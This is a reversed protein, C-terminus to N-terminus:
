IVSQMETSGPQANTRAEERPANTKADDRAAAHALGGEERVASAKPEPRANPKTLSEERAVSTAAEERAMSTIAELADERKELADERRQLEAFRRELAKIKDSLLLVDTHVGLGQGVSLPTVPRQTEGSPQRDPGEKSSSPTTAAADLGPDSVGKELALHGWSLRSGRRKNFESEIHNLAQVAHAEGKRYDSFDITEEYQLMRYVKRLPMVYYLLLNTIFNVASIIGVSAVLAILLAFISPKGIMGQQQIVIRIGNRAEVQADLAGVNVIGEGRHEWLIQSEDSLTLMGQPLFGSSISVAVDHMKAVRYEYSSVSGWRNHNYHVTLHLALGNLRAEESLDGDNDLVRAIRLLEHLSLIDFDGQERDGKARQVRYERESDRRHDVLKADLESSLIAYDDYFGMDNGSTAYASHRLLLSYGEVGPIFRKQTLGTCPRIEAESTVNQLCSMNYIKVQYATTIFLRDGETGATMYETPLRICPEKIQVVDDVINSQACYDHQTMSVFDTPELMQVEAYGTLPTLDLYRWDLILPKVIIYAVSAVILGYKFFGLYRDKILVFKPAIIALWEDPDIGYPM